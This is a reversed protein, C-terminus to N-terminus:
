RVYCFRYGDVKYPSGNSSTPPHIKTDSPVGPAYNYVTSETIFGVIFVDTKVIAQVMKAGTIQFNVYRSDDGPLPQNTRTLTIKVGDPTTQTGPSKGNWQYATTGTSCGAFGNAVAPTVGNGSSIGPKLVAASAPSSLAPLVTATVALAGIVAAAKKWNRIM